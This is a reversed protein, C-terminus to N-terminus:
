NPKWMFKAVSELTEAEDCLIVATSTLILALEFTRLFAMGVLVENTTEDLLIPGVVSRGGAVVQGLAVLNYIVQGNGLMVAAAAPQTALGLPVMEIQPLAVFGSFGTDLTVTYDKSGLPGGIRIEITANGAEDFAGTILM